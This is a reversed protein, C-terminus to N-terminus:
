APALSRQELRSKKLSSGIIEAGVEKHEPQLWRWTSSGAARTQEWGYQQQPLSVAQQAAAGLTDLSCPLPPLIAHIFISIYCLIAIQTQFQLYAMKSSHRICSYRVYFYLTLADVLYAPLSSPSPETCAPQSNRAPGPIEKPTASGVECKQQIYKTDQIKISPLFKLSGKQRYM